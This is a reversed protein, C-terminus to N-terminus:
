TFCFAQGRSVTVSNHDPRIRLPAPHPIPLGLRHLRLHRRRKPRRLHLPRLELPGSAANHNRHPIGPRRPHPRIGAPLRRRNRRVPRLRQKASPRRNDHIQKEKPKRGPVPKHAEQQTREHGGQRGAARRGEATGGPRGSHHNGNSEIVQRHEELSYTRDDTYNQKDHNGYVYYIGHKTKLGGLEKFVQKMDKNSTGEETIDGALIVIDPNLKNINKIERTLLKKDQITGYHTDAILVVKLESKLAATGELEYTVPVIRNMNYIGYGFYIALIVLAIIGYRYMKALAKYLSGDKASKFVKRVIFACVDTLAFVIAIALVVFPWPTFMRVCPIIVGATIILSVIKTKKENPDLGFFGLQKKLRRYYYFALLALVAIIMIYLIIM